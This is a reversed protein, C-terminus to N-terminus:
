CHKREHHEHAVEKIYNDIVEETKGDAVIKGKNLWITRNSIKKAPVLDHTVFIITKDNCKFENIKDYCKEQFAADGVALVEDVLLVDPNTQTAISFGLRMLMGASYTKTPSDIFDNLESFSIIEEEVERIQPISLGMIAGNFFINERGTLEPHFGAGLDLMTSMRGDVKVTGSTPTYVKGIIRLLTSKGSGNVGIISVSEGKEITFSIEDLANFTYTERKGFKLIASKLTSERDKILEFKKYLNKVEVASM